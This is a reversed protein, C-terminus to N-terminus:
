ILMTADKRLQRKRFGNYLFKGLSNITIPDTQQLTFKFLDESTYYQLPFKFKSLKDLENMFIDRENGHLECKFLMHREDDINKLNCFKCIRLEAPTIPRTHRGLEIFLCHSSTRFKAISSM